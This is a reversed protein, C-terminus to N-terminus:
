LDTGLVEDILLLDARVALAALQTRSQCGLKELIHEVHTSVTRPSIFLQAAITPNSFGGAILSLIQAERPSLNFPWEVAREVVLSLQGRCPVVDIRHCGGAPDAWLYSRRELLGAHRSLLQRLASSETLVPGPSRGPVDSVMGESTVLVAHADAGLREIGRHVNRMLDCASALLPRFGEIIHRAEDSADHPHSWSVHLAGTYRGNPLRLCMTTGERFGGPILFEEASYTRAFKLHWDRDLDSWRLADPVRTHLLHFAPNDEVFADNMHQQIEASYGETALTVHRHTGSGVDWATLAYGAWPILERLVRMAVGARAPPDDGVRREEPDAAMAPLLAEIQM